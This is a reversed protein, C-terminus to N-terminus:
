SVMMPSQLYQDLNPTYLCFRYALPVTFTFCAGSNQYGASVAVVSIALLFVLLVSNYLVCVPM